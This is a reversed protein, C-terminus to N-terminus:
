CIEIVKIKELSEIETGVISSSEQGYASLDDKLANQGDDCSVSTLLAVGVALKKALFKNNPMLDLLAELLKCRFTLSLRKM